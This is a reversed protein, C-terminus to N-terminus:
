LKSLQLQIKILKLLTYNNEEKPLKFIWSLM